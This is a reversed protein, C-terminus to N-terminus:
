IVVLWSLKLNKPSIKMKSEFNKKILDVNLKFFVKDDKSSLFEYDMLFVKNVFKKYNQIKNEINIKLPIKKDYFPIIGIIEKNNAYLISPLSPNEIKILKNTSYEM